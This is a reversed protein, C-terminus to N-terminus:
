EKTSAALRYHDVCRDQAYGVYSWLQCWEQCADNGGRMHSHTFLTYEAGLPDPAQAGWMNKVILIFALFSKPQIYSHLHMDGTIVWNLQIFPCWVSRLFPQTKPFQKAISCIETLTWRIGSLQQPLTTQLLKKGRHSPSMFWGAIACAVVWM